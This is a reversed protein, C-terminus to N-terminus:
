SRKEEQSALQVTQGDALQNAGDVVIRDGQKLGEVVEIRHGHIRGMEIQQKHVTNDEANLLWVYSHERDLPDGDQNFVAEIPISLGTRTLQLGQRSISVQVPMGDLIFQQEPMPMTLTVVFAGSQPDPEATYEDISAKFTNGQQTIVEPVLRTQVSQTNVGANRSFLIDPVQIRIDARTADHINMIAQGPAITEFPEVSVRSIVGNEPAKLEVYSLHLKALALEAQAIERQAKLEDFQSQALMGQEVLPASRRYQADAVDFRASANEVALRYDTPELRALVDGKKVLDGAKVNIQQVEGPVRFALTAKDAAAAVAPFTIREDQQQHHVTFTTVVPTTVERPASEPQCASLLLVGLWIGLLKTIAKM